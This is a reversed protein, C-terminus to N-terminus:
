DSDDDHFASFWQHPFSTSFMDFYMGRSTAEFEWDHCAYGCRAKQRLHKLNHVRCGCGYEAMDVFEYSPLLINVMDRPNVWTRLLVSYVIHKIVRYRSYLMLQHLRQSFFQHGLTNLYSDFGHDPSMYTDIWAWAKLYRMHAIEHNAMERVDDEDYQDFLKDKKIVWTPLFFNTPTTYKVNEEFKDMWQLRITDIIDVLTLHRMIFNVLEFELRHRVGYDRLNDLRKAPGNWRTYASLGIQWHPNEFAQDYEDFRSFMLQRTPKPVFNCIHTILDPYNAFFDNVARLFSLNDQEDMQNQMGLVSHTSHCLHPLDLDLQSAPMKRLVGMDNMRRIKQLPNWYLCVANCCMFPIFHMRDSDIESPFGLNFPHTYDANPHNALDHWTWGDHYTVDHSSTYNLVGEVCRWEEFDAVFNPNSPNYSMHEKFKKFSPPASEYYVHTVASDYEVPLINM